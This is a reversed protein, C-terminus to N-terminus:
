EGVFIGVGAQRQAPGFYESFSGTARTQEDICAAYGRDRSAHLVGYTSRCFGGLAVPSASRRGRSLFEPHKGTTNYLMQEGQGASAPATSALGRGSLANKKQSNREGAQAGAVLFVWVLFVPLVAKFIM